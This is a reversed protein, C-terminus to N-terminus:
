IQKKKTPGLPDNSCWVTLLCVTDRALGNLLTEGLGLAAKPLPTWLFSSMALLCSPVLFVLGTLLETLSELYLGGPLFLGRLYFRLVVRIEQLVYM